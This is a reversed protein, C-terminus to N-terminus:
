KNLRIIQLEEDLSIKIKRDSTIEILKNKHISYKVIGTNKDTARWLMQGNFYGYVLSINM